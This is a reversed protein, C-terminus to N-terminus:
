EKDETKLQITKLQETPAYLPQLKELLTYFERKTVPANLEENMQELLTTQM